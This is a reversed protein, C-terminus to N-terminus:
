KPIKITQGLKLAYPSKINNLSALTTWDINFRQSINFLTDGKQIKYEAFQVTTPIQDSTKTDSVGLVQPTTSPSTNTNKGFFMLRFANVTLGTAIVLCVIAGVKLITNNSYGRGVGLKLRPSLDFKKKSKLM